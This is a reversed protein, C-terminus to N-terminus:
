HDSDIKSRKIKKIITNDCTADKPDKTLSSHKRIVNNKKIFKRIVNNNNVKTDHEMRGEHAVSFPLAQIVNDIDQDGSPNAQQPVSKFLDSKRERKEKDKKVNGDVRNMNEASDSSVGVDGPFYNTLRMKKLILILKTEEKNTEKNDASVYLDNITNPSFHDLFNVIENQEVADASRIPSVTICEASYNMLDVDSGCDLASDRSQLDSKSSKKRGKRANPASTRLTTADEQVAPSQTPAGVGQVLDAKTANAGKIDEIAVQNVQGDLPQIAKGNDTPVHKVSIKKRKHKSATNKDDDQVVVNETLIGSRNEPYKLSVSEILESNTNEEPVGGKDGTNGYLGLVDQYSGQNTQ